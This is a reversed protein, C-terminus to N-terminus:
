VQSIEVMQQDFITGTQKINGLQIQRIVRQQTSAVSEVLKEDLFEVRIHCNVLHDQCPVEHVPRASAEKSIKVLRHEFKHDPILSGLIKGSNAWDIVFM